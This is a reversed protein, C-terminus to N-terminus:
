VTPVTCMKVFRFFFCNQLSGGSDLLRWGRRVCASVRRQATPRVEEEVDTDYLARTTLRNRSMGENLARHGQFERRRRRTKMYSSSDSSDNQLMLPFGSVGGVWASAPVSGSSPGPPTPPPPPTPPERLKPCPLHRLTRALCCSLPEGSSNKKIISISESPM